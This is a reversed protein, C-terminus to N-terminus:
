GAPASAEDAATPRAKEVRLPNRSVTRCEFAPHEAVHRVVTHRRSGTIGTGGVDDAGFTEPLREYLRRLDDFSDFVKENGASDAGRRSVVCAGDTRHEGATRLFERRAVLADGIEDALRSAAERTLEHTTGDVALLVTGADSEVTM